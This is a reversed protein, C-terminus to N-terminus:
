PFYGNVDALLDTAAQANYLCVTGAPSLKV